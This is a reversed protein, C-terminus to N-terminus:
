RNTIVLHNYYKNNGTPCLDVMAIAPDAVLHNGLLPLAAIKENPETVLMDSM